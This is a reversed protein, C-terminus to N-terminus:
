ARASQLPVVEGVAAAACHRAWEDMLRRRKEIMEGRQYALELADTQSHALAVEILERPYATRETAWTKFTARFGHVTESRGMGSMVDLLANVPLRRSRRTFILDGTRDIRELVAIAADSLVSRHPRGGKMRNGPITWTRAAFDIETWKAGFVEGSRAATLILFELARADISDLDRLEAKFAGIEAYPMADLHKVDRTKSRAPLLEKLHGKWRAPNEGTRYESVRAYDLVSEIRGRLRSATEPIATWLGTGDPTKQKLVRVVLATDIAGVPLKGIIPSAYAAVTAEWNDAHRPGWSARHSEVYAAVCDDFTVSKADQARAAAAQARRVGIPDRGQRTLRRAEAAMERAAALSVDPYSGLGMTRARSSLTYRFVWSSADPPTVALYLNGGDSLLGRAEAKILKGVAAKLRLDSFKEKSRGM